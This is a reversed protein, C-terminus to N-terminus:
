MLSLSNGNLSIHSGSSLLFGEIYESDVSGEIVEYFFLDNRITDGSNIIFNNRGGAKKGDALYIKTRFRYGMRFLLIGDRKMKVSNFSEIIHEIEDKETSCM